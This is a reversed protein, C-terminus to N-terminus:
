AGIRVELSIRCLSSFFFVPLSGFTAKAIDDVRKASHLAYSYDRRALVRPNPLLAVALAVCIGENMVGLKDHWGDM